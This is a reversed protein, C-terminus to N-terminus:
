FGDGWGQRMQEREKDMMEDMQKELKDWYEIARQEMKEVEFMAALPSVFLGEYQQEWVQDGRGGMKGLQYFGNIDDHAIYYEGDDISQDLCIFTVQGSERSTAYKWTEWEIVWSRNFIPRDIVIRGSSM